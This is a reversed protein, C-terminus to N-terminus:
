HKVPMLSRRAPVFKPGSKKGSIILYQRSISEYPQMVIHYPPDMEFNM